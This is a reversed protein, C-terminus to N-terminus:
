KRMSAKPADKNFRCHPDREIARVNPRGVVQLLVLTTSSFVNIGSFYVLYLKEHFVRLFLFTM